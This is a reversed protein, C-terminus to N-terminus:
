AVGSLGHTRLYAASLEMAPASQRVPRGDLSAVPMVGLRSNTLALAYARRLDALTLVCSHVTAHRKVWGLVAGSRAGESPTCIRLGGHGSDRHSPMWVLLNAMAGSVVRRRADIMVAEEGGAERAAALAELHPLYHGQKESWSAGIVRDDLTVLRLGRRLEEGSPFPTAEWAIYCAPESPSAWPSGSGATLYIRIMGDALTARKLFGLLIPGLRRPWRLEGRLAADRLLAIHERALLVRGNRVALSEFLHHGYRFGRDSLPIGARHPIVADGDWRWVRFTAAAM